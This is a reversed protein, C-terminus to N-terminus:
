SANNKGELAFLEQKITEMDKTLHELVALLVARRAQYETPASGNHDDRYDLPCPTLGGWTCDGDIEVRMKGGSPLTLEEYPMGFDNEKTEFPM